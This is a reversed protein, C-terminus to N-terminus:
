VKEVTCGGIFERLLSLPPIEDMMEPNFDPTNELVRILRDLTPTPALAKLENFVANKLVPLEYHLASNFVSDALEQYPFIWRDEGNRVSQWMALTDGPSTGRFHYDRVMRRLLRVETTRIRNHDDLNLCTLASIFVRYARDLGRSIEPNLGHIGELILIQNPGLQTPVGKPERRQTKFNFRPIEVEEGQSLRQLQDQLLAVDLASLAELDVTGDAEPAIDVRNRYYDDMSVRLFTRGLMRLHFGLRAAFTTKGSSSPGAVLVIKSGSFVISQAIDGITRDQLAENVRIFERMRGTEMMRAIDSTNNVEMIRCWDASEAFVRLHKPYCVFPAPCDKSTANPLQLVFGPTNELLAFVPCCGTSPLLEGYFDDLHKELLSLEVTAPEERSALLSVKDARGLKEFASIAERRSKTIREIPLDERVLERMREEIQRIERSSLYMGPLRILVGNSVSYEARMKQEPYLQELATAAIMLMTREYLRRNKEITLDIM